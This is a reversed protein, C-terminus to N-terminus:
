ALVSGARQSGGHDDLDNVLVALTDITRFGTGPFNHINWTLIDFTNDTGRSDVLAFANVASLLVLSIIILLIRSKIM